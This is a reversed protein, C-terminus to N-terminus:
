QYDVTVTMTGAYTGGATASSLTMSGGVSFQVGPMGSNTLVISAPADLVLQITKSSDGQNVLTVAPATIQVTEKNTGVVQYIAAQATGTCITNPNACSRVGAQSLSVTAGSWNGAGLIITGLDLDQLATLSLPKVVSAKVTVTTTASTPAAVAPIVPLTISVILGLIHGRGWMAFTMLWIHNVDRM